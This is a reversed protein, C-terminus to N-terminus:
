SVSHTVQECVTDIMKLLNERNKRVSGGDWELHCDGAAIDPAGVIMCKGSFHAHNAIMNIKSQLLAVLSPNIKIKLKEAEIFLPMQENLMKEIAVFFREEPTAGIVKEAIHRAITVTDDLQSKWHKELEQILAPISSAIKECTQVLQQQMAEDATKAAQFGKAYGEEYGTKYHLPFRAELEKRVEQERADAAAAERTKLLEQSQLLDEKLSGFISKFAAKDQLPDKNAVKKRDLTTFEFKQNM